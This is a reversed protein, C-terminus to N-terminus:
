NAIIELQMAHVRCSHSDSTHSLASVRALSSEESKGQTVSKARVCRDLDSTGPEISHRSHLGIIEPYKRGHNNLQSKQCM